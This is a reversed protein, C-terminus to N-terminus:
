FIVLRNGKLNIHDSVLLSIITSEKKVRFSNYLETFSLVGEKSLLSRIFARIFHQTKIIDLIALTVIYSTQEISQGRPCDINFMKYQFTRVKWMYIVSTAVIDDWM